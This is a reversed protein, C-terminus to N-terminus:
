FIFVSSVKSRKKNMYTTSLGDHMKFGFICNATLELSKSTRLITDLVLNTSFNKNEIRIESMKLRLIWEFQRTKDFHVVPLM